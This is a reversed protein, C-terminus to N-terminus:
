TAEVVASQGPSLHLTSPEVSIWQSLEDPRNGDYPSWLGDKIESGGAYLSVDLPSTTGDTVQMKRTITVGPKLHDIIYLRARPDHALATPAELLQIGLGPHTKSGTSSYAATAPTVLVGAVALLALLRRM